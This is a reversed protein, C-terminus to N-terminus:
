VPEKDGSRPQSTVHMASPVPQRPQSDVGVIMQEWADFSGGQPRGSHGVLCLAMNHHSMM